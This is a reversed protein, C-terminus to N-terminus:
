MMWLNSAVGHSYLGRSELLASDVRPAHHQMQIAAFIFHFAIDMLTGATPADVNFIQITSLSYPFNFNRGRQSGSHKCVPCIISLQLDELTCRLFLLFSGRLSMDYPFMRSHTRGSGPMRPVDAM